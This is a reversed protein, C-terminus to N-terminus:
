DGEPPPFNDAVDGKTTHRIRPDGDILTHLLRTGCRPGGLIFMPQNIEIGAIAPNRIRDASIAKLRRLDDHINGLARSRGNDNLGTEKELAALLQVLGERVGERLYEPLPYQDLLTDTDPFLKEASRFLTTYPFLTDTRTSRPPLRIM